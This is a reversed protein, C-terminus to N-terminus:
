SWVETIVIGCAAEVVRKKFKYVETLLPEREKWERVVVGKRMSRKKKNYGPKCDEVVTDGVALGGGEDSSLQVVRNYRFDATYTGVAVGNVVIEFSPHVEPRTIEAARYRLMLLEYRKLEDDNDFAYGYKEIRRKRYRHPNM